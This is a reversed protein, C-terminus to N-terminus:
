HRCKGQAITLVSLVILAGQIKNEGPNTLFPAIFAGPKGPFNQLLNFRLSSLPEPFTTM